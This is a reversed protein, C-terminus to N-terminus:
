PRAVMMVDRDGDLVLLKLWAIASPRTNGAGETLRRGRRALAGILIARLVRPVILTRDIARARLPAMPLLL